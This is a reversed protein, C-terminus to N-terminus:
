DGARGTNEISSATGTIINEEEDGDYYYALVDKTTQAAYDSSYGFAIRTAIAIEPNNYPAYCVFLAHSARKLSEQATGTKGAVAVGLDSFYSKGEIVRSMGLHIADWTSDSVSDLTNRVEAQNDYLLNGNADTVKDILTLNYCTGSNAVTTIYRALGVTTYNNTGQGIASRIPDTDSVKPDNEEIEIGSTESLGYMDAYTALTDLGTQSNYQGDLNSLRSGVEYFFSNCSNQIGGIVNLSGHAGPYIWCRAITNGTEYFGNCTIRSATDIVGEGLAATATVMKYTSGPATRQQTAYNYLPRSQNNLLSSFYDADVGNAMYNNDYSPYSVLALVDGTNVDTIVMSGSYPDLALDAPTIELNTIKNILFDYASVRGSQLGALTEDDVEVINQEYLMLCIQRGTLKDTKIMYQYILKSFASDTTLTEQLYDCIQNFVEESDSYQSGLDLRSVDIWNQAIMYELYEAMSIEGSTWSKYTEDSSPIEDAMIIGNDTLLTSIIYSEYAQYESPLKNFVTRKTYLQNDIEELVNEQQGLFNDLVLKETDGATESAMHNLNIVNNDILAFYVDYLPILIDSSSSNETATYERINKIKSILIGAIKQEVIHYAAEQLDKDITLYVDNGAIPDVYDTAEIVRGLNDVFVTESGKTGQLTTELAQEIGAKGIVDNAEYNSNEEQLALLEDTSIKGTYGIIQSFYEGDVYRRVTDEAIAIGTLGDLNEMIEAVTAESVDTAMTTAIYKQYNNASMSYRITILKLMESKTYGEGPVFSKSNGPETFTGVGYKTRGCLYEMVEEATATREEYELLDVTTRGYVDALFRLLQTGSVAFEFNNDSNLVINFDSIVSDGHNEIMKIVDYLTQNIEANKTSGSEYIDEITVSYALENYALLNGNRDYINGRTSTITREREIRLQFDNLYYAGNVIQLSFIRYVLVGAALIFIVTLIIMRTNLISEFSKKVREFM